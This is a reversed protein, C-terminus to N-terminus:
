ESYRPLLQGIIVHGINCATIVYDTFAIIDRVRKERINERSLDNGGIELFISDPNFSNIIHMCNERQICKPGPRLTGGGIGM